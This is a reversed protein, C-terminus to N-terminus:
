TSAVECGAAEGKDSCSVAPEPHFGQSNRSYGLRGQLAELVAGAKPGLPSSLLYYKM